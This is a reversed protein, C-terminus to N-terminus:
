LKQTVDDGFRVKIIEEHTEFPEMTETHSDFFKSGDESVTEVFLDTADPLMMTVGWSAFPSRGILFQPVGVLSPGILYTKYEELVEEGNEIM